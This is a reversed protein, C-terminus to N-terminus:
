MEAATLTVKSVTIYFNSQWNCRVLILKHSLRSKIHHKM